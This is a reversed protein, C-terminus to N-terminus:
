RPAAPSGSAPATAPACTRMSASARACSASEPLSGPPMSRVPAARHARAHMRRRRHDGQPRDGAHEHGPAARRRCQRGQLRRGAGAVERGPRAANDRHQDTHGGQGDLRAHVPINQTGTASTYGNEMIILVGDDNRFLANAVGTSLGNHWFGGDGMVTVVRKGFNPGIGAAAALSLGYGLVTNGLNFPPLTSFTHCGIDSSIHIGGVEKDVLKLASFVPREPCGVCFGPPRVPVPSGLLEAARSRAQVVGDLVADIQRPDVGDPMALKPLPRHRGARGRRYIRRGHASHGQRHRPARQHRRPAPHLQHEGRPAGAPRGRRDARRAQQRLVPDGGGPDAPLHRQPRLAPDARATPM